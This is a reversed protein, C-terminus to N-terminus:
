EFVCVDAVFVFGVGITLDTLRNYSLDVSILNILPEFIHDDIHSLENSSLNLHLLPANSKLFDSFCWLCIM